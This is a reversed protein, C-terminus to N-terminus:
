DCNHRLPSFLLLNAQKEFKLHKTGDIKLVTGGGGGKGGTWNNQQTSKTIIDMIGRSQQGWSRRAFEKKTEEKENKSTVAFNQNIKLFYFDEM